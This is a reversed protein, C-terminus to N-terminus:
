CSSQRCILTERLDLGITRSALVLRTETIVETDVVAVITMEVIIIVASALRYKALVTTSMSAKIVDGTRITIEIVSKKPHGHDNPKSLMREMPGSTPM